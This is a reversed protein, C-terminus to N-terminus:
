PPLPRGEGGNQTQQRGCKRRLDTRFRLPRQRDDHHSPHDPRQQEKIENRHEVAEVAVALWMGVGPVHSVSARSACCSWAASCAQKTYSQNAILRTTASLLTM